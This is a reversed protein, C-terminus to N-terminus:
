KAPAAVAAPAAAADATATTAKEKKKKADAEEVEKLKKSILAELAHYGSTPYVVKREVSRGIVTPITSKQIKYARGAAKEAKKKDEEAKLKDPNPVDVNVLSITEVPAHGDVLIMKLVFLVTSVQVTKNEMQQVTENLLYALRAVLEKLLKAVHDRLETSVRLKSKGTPNEASIPEPYKSAAVDRCIEKVYCNFSTKRDIPEKPEAAAPPAAIAAAVAALGAAAIAAAEAPPVEVAKKKTAHVNYKKKFDKEHQKALLDRDKKEAADKRETFIRERTERFTPLSELLKYLPIKELGESYMHCLDINKRSPTSNVGFEMAHAIVERGVEDCTIAVADPANHSFRTRASSYAHADQKMAGIHGDYQTVTAKFATIEEPTLAREYQEQVKTTVGDTVKDVERTATLKGAALSAKATEYAEIKAKLDQSPGEISQNICAKDLNCRVRSTSTFIIQPEAPVAPAAAVVAEAPAGAPVAAAVAAPAGAVPAVAAAAPAAAVAAVPAAAAPLDKKKETKPKVARPKRGTSM